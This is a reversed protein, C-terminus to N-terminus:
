LKSIHLKSTKKVPEHNCIRDETNKGEVKIGYLCRFFIYMEITTSNDFLVPNYSYKTIVLPYM